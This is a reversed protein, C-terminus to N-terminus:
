TIGVAKVVKNAISEVLDCAPINLLSFFKGEVIRLPSVVRVRKFSVEDM